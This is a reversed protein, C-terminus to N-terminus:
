LRLSGFFEDWWTVFADFSQTLAWLFAIGLSVLIVITALNRVRYLQRQTRDEMYSPEHPPPIATTIVYPEAPAVYAPAPASTDLPPQPVPEDDIDSRENELDAPESDEVVAEPNLTALAQEVTPSDEVVPLELGAREFLVSEDIGLVASLATIVGPDNPRSKDREWSRVSSPSRGVLEGVRTQSLGLKTRQSRITRGFTTESM